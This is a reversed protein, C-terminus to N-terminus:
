HKVLTGASAGASTFASGRWPLPLRGMLETEADGPPPREMGDGAVPRDKAASPRPVQELNTGSNQVDAEPDGKLKFEAPLVQSLPQEAPPPVLFRIQVFRPSPEENAFEKWRKENYPKSRSGEGGAQLDLIREADCGAYVNQGGAWSFLARMLHEGPGEIHVLAKSGCVAFLCGRAEVQTSVLGKGNSAGARLAILPETLYTTVRELTVKGAAGPLPEKDNADTEANLLSGSLAVLSGKVILAFARSPRVALLDGEGRVFCQELRVEPAKAGPPAMRMADKEESLAVVSLATPSEAVAELTVTCGKFSCQGNGKLRVVAQSKFDERDPKREPRLHFELNEFHLHGHYLTFLAANLDIAKDALTLVPRHDGDPRITIRQDIELTVPSVAVPGTHRILIVDGPKASLIAAELKWYVGPTDPPVDPDVVKENAKRKVVEPSAAAPLPPLGKPYMPGWVCKEVGLAYNRDTQRVKATNFDIQFARRPDSELLALPNDSDLARADTLNSSFTDNGGQQEQVAAKFTEWSDVQLGKEGSRVWFANLGHYCNRTGKYLVYARVNTDTQRILDASDRGDLSSDPRSFLSHKVEFDCAADSDLRFAPGNVLLATVNNLRLRSRSANSWGWLHFLAVHPGFACNTQYVEAPRVLAVATQGSKFYCERFELVPRDTSDEGPDAAVSAVPYLQRQSILPIMEARSQTFLCREFTVRQAGRVLVGAVLRTPTFPAEVDFVLNRFTVSGGNVVLGVWSAEEAKKADPVVQIVAWNKWDQPNESEIELRQDPKGLVLGGENVLIKGRVTLRTYGTAKDAAERLGRETTIVGPASGTVVVPKGKDPQPRRDLAPPPKFEARGNDKPPHWAPRYRGPAFSLVILFIGLALVAVAGILLPRKRPPSPLPADVFLVGDPLDAIAGLKQAMQILHQVLHEARQYRDKPDKAMMRVLIAAVDDPIDPNLQRPDVPAVHQHHHLKRAATGEPVPPQGTLMHYFTCGLSYIDSRVDAERPDMAQEPAIYDFTGLTVGSQTLARDDHPGMNRALGMDVLKARGNPSIIINSPKIDRHVVGRSAAHALGTAIQLMYHVAEPVPLRGRRELLTRLNVGEVFEFAIFHLRQDEGCFFVRAINEHDLKAAARAEQHFRRVNEPDDAMEPPLIKLAVLRDLQLDRARIVAAMGGVGIPEILEFHALIRGRLSGGVELVGRGERPHHATPADQASGNAPPRSPPNKSIITPSDDSPEADVPFIPEDLASQDDQAQGNVPAHAGSSAASEAASRPHGPPQPELM